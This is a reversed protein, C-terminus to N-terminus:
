QDQNWISIGYASFYSKEEIQRRQNSTREWLMEEPRVAEEEEESISIYM